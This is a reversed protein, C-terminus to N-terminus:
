SSGENTADTAQSLALSLRRRALRRAREKATDLACEAGSACGSVAVGASEEGHASSFTRGAARVKGPAMEAAMLTLGRTQTPAQADSVQANVVAGPAEWIPACVAKGESKHIM